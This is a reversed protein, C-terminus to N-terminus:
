FKRISLWENLATNFKDNREYVWFTSHPESVSQGCILYRIGCEKMFKKLGTDYTTYIISM